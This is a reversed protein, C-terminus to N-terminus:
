SFVGLGQGVLVAGVVIVPVLVIPTMNDLLRQKTVDVPQDMREGGILVAVIPAIISITAVVAFLAMAAVADAGSFPSDGLSAAAAWLM